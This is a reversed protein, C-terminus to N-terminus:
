GRRKEFNEDWLLPDPKYVTILLTKGSDYEGCVVHIPAGRGYGLILCSPGRPDNPYDEIIKGTLIAEKVQAMELADNRREEEAHKSVDYSGKEINQRIKNIDM